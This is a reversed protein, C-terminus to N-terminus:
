YGLAEDVLIVTIRGPEVEKNIILVKAIVSGPVGYAKKARESELPLTHSELRQMAEELNATIKNTGVVWIVKGAGYAYAPLQSGTASAMVAKGDETLAQVSGVVFHPAAGIKKMEAAQSKMDMNMLRKRASKYNGSEVLEKAIGTTELTVSTMTMVDSGKPITELVKARAEESSKTLIVDMGNAKLAEITKSVANEDAKQSWKM